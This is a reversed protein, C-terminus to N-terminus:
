RGLEFPATVLTPAGTAPFDFRQAARKACAYLGQEFLYHPAQVRVKGVKGDGSVAMKLTVTAVLDTGTAARVICDIVGSGRRSIAAGIEGDDLSRATDAAGDGMDFTKPPLSVEDGRWELKRDAASLAIPEAVEPETEETDLAGDDDIQGGGPANAVRRGKRKKKGKAVASGSGTAADPQVAAPTAAASGRWPQEVGLYMAAAGIVLGIALGLWFRV